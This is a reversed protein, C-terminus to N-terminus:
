QLEKSKKNIYEIYNDLTDIVKATRNSDAVNRIVKKTPELAFMAVVIDRPPLTVRAFAIILLVVSAPKLVSTVSIHFADDRDDLSILFLFASFGAVITAVVLITSAMFQINPYIGYLYIMWPEISNM